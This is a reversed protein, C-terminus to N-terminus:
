RERSIDKKLDNFLKTLFKYIPAYTDPTSSERPGAINLIEIKNKKIWDRIERASFIGLTTIVLHSKGLEKAKIETLATGGKLAKTKSFILTGDSDRINWETRQPYDSSETEQLKYREPIEGDLAKRGKPCWGGHEIGEKIAADLAARDVGTQGGSIIKRIM